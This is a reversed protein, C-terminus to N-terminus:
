KWHETSLINSPVEWLVPNQATTVFRSSILSLAKGSGEALLSLALPAVVEDM